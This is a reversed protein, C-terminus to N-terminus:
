HCPGRYSSKPLSPQNETEARGAKMLETLNRLTVSPVTKFKSAARRVFPQGPVVLDYDGISGHRL